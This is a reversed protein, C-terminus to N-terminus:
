SLKSVMKVVQLLGDQMKSYDIQSVLRYALAIYFVSASEKASAVAINFFRRGEKPSIRGNGESINLIVSTLARKLQDSLYFPWSRTLSPMSKALELALLNCKLKHHNFM